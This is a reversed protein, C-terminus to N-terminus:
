NRIIKINTNISISTAKDRLEENFDSIDQYLNVGIGCIIFNGHPSQKFECLIGCVKKNNILIDNPWKIKPNLSYDKLLDTIALSIILLKIDTVSLSIIVATFRAPFLTIAPSVVLV